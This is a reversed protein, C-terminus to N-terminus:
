VEINELSLTNHYNLFVIVLRSKGDFLFLFSDCLIGKRINKNDM